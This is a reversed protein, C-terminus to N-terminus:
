PQIYPKRDKDYSADEFVLDFNPRLAPAKEGHVDEGLFTEVKTGAAAARVADSATPSVASVQQAIAEAYAPAVKMAAKAIKVSQSKSLSSATAAAVPAMEPTAKSIATVTQLLAGAKYSKTARIVQTVVDKQDAKTAKVVMESALASVNRLKANSISEDIASVQAPTLANASVVAAILLAASLSLVKKM